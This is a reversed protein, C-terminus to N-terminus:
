HLTTLPSSQWRWIVRRHILNKKQKDKENLKM